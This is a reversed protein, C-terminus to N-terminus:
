IARLKTIAEILVDRRKSWMEASRVGWLYIPDGLKAPFDRLTRANNELAEAAETECYRAGIELM